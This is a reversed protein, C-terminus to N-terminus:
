CNFQNSPGMSSLDKMLGELNKLDANLEETSLSHPIPHSLCDCPGNQPHLVDPSRVDAIAPLHGTSYQSNSNQNSSSSAGTSSSSCSSPSESSISGLKLLGGMNLSGILPRKFPSSPTPRLPNKPQHSSNPSPARFSKLPFKSNRTASSVSSSNDSSTTSMASSLYMPPLQSIIAGSGSQNATSSGDISSSATTHNWPLDGMTSSPCDESPACLSPDYGPPPLDDPSELSMVPNNSRLSPPDLSYQSRIYTGSGNCSGNTQSSVVASFPGNFRSRDMSSASRYDPTSRGLTTEGTEDGDIAKLELQDHGIWLDPPPPNLKERASPGGHGVDNHIYNKNHRNENPISATIKSRVLLTGGIILVIIIGAGVGFIAYLIMPSVNENARSYSKAPDKPTKFSVVQSTPGYGKNNRASMKFFYKADMDLGNLTAETEAGVVAEVYWEIEAAKRNKTYQIIYGNIRGNPYKPAIWSLEVTGDGVSDIILDRPASSPEAELTKNMAVLSWPSMRRGKIIKVTFEYEANARLDDIMCNLDTSNRYQYKIPSKNVPAYRVIYYRYDSVVQNKPLSSDVWTLVISYSSLVITHLGVPPLLPTLVEEEYEEQTRVTEYIPRGDGINNYARLSIVYESNPKLDTIRFFRQKEDVVHIYEDPVGKGWGMRYGRVLIQSDKPPTWTIAIEDDMARVRISSPQNPVISEDRDSDFTSISLWPTSPGTGNVTMAAIKVQYETGVFLKPIVFLRRSADTTFIESKGRGKKKYRLKYGSIIGNQSEKPPPEWRLLISRSSAAELTVNTPPDAPIDSYTMCKIEESHVGEGNANSASVWFTYDTYERLDTLHYKMKKVITSREFGYEGQRHCVKYQTIFGTDTSPTDWAVLISFSATPRCRLNRVPGPVDIDDQTSVTIMESYEGRGNENFALVRFEYSTGPTLGQINVESLEGRTSNMVRERESGKEKYYVTYGLITGEPNLPSSWTLTIFRTAAIAVHFDIPASPTDLFIFSGQDDNSPSSDLSSSVSSLSPSVVNSIVKLQASSQVNGVSNTAMCQYMGADSDLLGLIRLNSGDVIQFYDSTVILEGNKYWQVKAPPFSQVKCEFTIDGKASCMQNSPRVVFEPASHVEVIATVDQSDETNEARCQYAGSDTEANLDQIKLSGKGLKTLRSDLHSMDLSAGDKLWTIEPQPVGNAACDLILTTGQLVARNRPKVIFNPPSNVLSSASDLDITLKGSRSKLEEGYVCSYKARDSPEVNIIELMGSPKISIRHNLILPQDDKLWQINDSSLEEESNDPTELLCQFAATQGLFVQLDSPELEFSPPDKVILVATKSVIKGLGKVDAVCQYIGEDRPDTLSNYIWSFHLSGNSLLRRRGNFDPYQLYHGNRKWKYEVPSATSTTSASCLLLGSENEKMFIDSPEKTFEFEPFVHNSGEVHKLLKLSVYFLLLFFTRQLIM